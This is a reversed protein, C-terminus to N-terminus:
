ESPRTEAVASIGIAAVITAFRDVAIEVSHDQQQRNRYGGRREGFPRRGCRGHDHLDHHHRHSFPGATTTCPVATELRRGRRRLFLLRRVAVVVPGITTNTAAAATAAAATFLIRGGDRHRFHSRSRSL